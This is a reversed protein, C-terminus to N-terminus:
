PASDTPEQNLAARTQSHTSSTPCHFFKPHTQKNKFTILSRYKHMLEKLTLMPFSLYMVGSLNVKVNFLRAPVIILPREQDHNRM